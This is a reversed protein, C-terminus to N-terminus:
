EAKDLAADDLKLRYYLAGKLNHIAGVLAKVSKEKYGGFDNPSNQLVKLSREVDRIAAVIEPHAQKETQFNLQPAQAQASMTCAITGFAVCASFATTSLIRTSFNM